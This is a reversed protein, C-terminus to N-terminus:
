GLVSDIEPLSEPAVLYKIEYRNTYVPAAVEASSDSQEPVADPLRPRSLNARNEFTSM